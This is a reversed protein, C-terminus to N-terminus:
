DYNESNKKTKDTQQAINKEQFERQLLQLKAKVYPNAEMVKRERSDKNLEENRKKGNRLFYFIKLYFRQLSIIINEIGM